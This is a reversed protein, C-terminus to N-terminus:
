REVTIENGEELNLKEWVSRLDAIRHNHMKSSCDCLVDYIRVRVKQNNIKLEKEGVEFDDWIKKPVLFFKDIESYKGFIKNHVKIKIM